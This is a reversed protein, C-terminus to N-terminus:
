GRMRVPDPEATGGSELAGRNLEKTYCADFHWPVWGSLKEGDIEYVNGEHDIEVVGPMLEQDVRTMTRLAHDQLPGFLDSLALQM